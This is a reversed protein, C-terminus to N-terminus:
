PRQWAKRVEAVSESEVPPKNPILLVIVAVLAAVGIKVWEDNSVDGDSVAAQAAVAAAGLAAVIFKRYRSM